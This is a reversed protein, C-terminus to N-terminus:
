HDASSKQSTQTGTALESHTDQLYSRVWALTRYTIFGTKLSQQLGSCLPYDNAMDVNTGRRRGAIPGIRPSKIECPAPQGQINQATDIKSASSM